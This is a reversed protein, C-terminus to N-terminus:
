SCTLEARNPLVDLGTEMNPATFVSYNLNTLKRYIRAYRLTM